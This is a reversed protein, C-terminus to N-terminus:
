APIQDLQRLAAAIFEPPSDLAYTLLARTVDAPPIAMHEALALIRPTIEEGLRVNLSSADAPM